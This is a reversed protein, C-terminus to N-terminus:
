GCISTLKSQVRVDGTDSNSRNSINALPIDISARCTYGHGHSTHIPNFTLSRNASVTGSIQQPQTISTDSSDINVWELNPVSIVYDETRASCDLTYAQGATPNPTATINVVPLPLVACPARYCFKINDQRYFSVQSKLQPTM